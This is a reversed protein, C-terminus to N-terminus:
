RVRGAGIGLKGEEWGVGGGEVGGELGRGRESGRVLGVHHLSSDRM